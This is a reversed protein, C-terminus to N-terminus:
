NCMFVVTCQCLLIYQPCEFACKTEQPFLSGIPQNGNEDTDETSESAVNGAHSAVEPAAGAAQPQAPPEEDKKINM